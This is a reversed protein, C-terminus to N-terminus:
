RRVQSQTVVDFELRFVAADGEPGQRVAVSMVLRSAGSVFANWGTSWVLTAGMSGSASVLGTTDAESGLPQPDFRGRLTLYALTDTARVVLSDLRMRGAGTMQGAQPVGEQAGVGSLVSLPYGIEAVWEDGAAVPREPLPVHFGGALGRGLEGPTAALHPLDVFEGEQVNLREDLLLRAVVEDRAGPEVDRWPGGVAHMRARVSDYVLEIGIRGVGVADVHQTASELRSAEVTLPAAVEGAFPLIRMVIESRAM